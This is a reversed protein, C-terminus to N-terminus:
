HQPEVLKSTEVVIRNGSFQLYPISLCASLRVSPRRAVGLAAGLSPWM